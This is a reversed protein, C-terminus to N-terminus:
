ASPCGRVELRVCPMINWLLPYLRLCLATAPTPLPTLAVTDVDIDGQFTQLLCLGVMSIEFFKIEKM